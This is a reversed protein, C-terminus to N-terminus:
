AKSKGKGKGAELEGQNRMITLKGASAVNIMQKEISANIKTSLQKQQQKEKVKQANKPAIDRRGKKTKGTNKRGGSPAKAKLGKSSGQAM